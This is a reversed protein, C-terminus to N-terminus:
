VIIKGYLGVGLQGAMNIHNVQKIYLTSTYLLCSNKWVDFDHGGPTIYYIHEVGNKNLTNNSDRICM